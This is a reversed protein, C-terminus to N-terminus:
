YHHSYKLTNGPCTDRRKPVHQPKRLPSSLWKSRQGGHDHIQMQFWGTKLSSRLQIISPGLKAEMVKTERRRQSPKMTWLAGRCSWSTKENFFHWQMLFGLGRQFACWSFTCSCKLLVRQPGSHVNLHSFNQHVTTVISQVKKQTREYPDYVSQDTLRM